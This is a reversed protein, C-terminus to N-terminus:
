LDTWIFTQYSDPSSASILATFDTHHNFTPWTTLVKYLTTNSIAAHGVAEMHQIGPDRRDDYPPPTEWHDYNTQLLFFNDQGKQDELKWTDM